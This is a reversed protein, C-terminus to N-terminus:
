VGANVTKADGNTAAEAVKADPSEELDEDSTKNAEDATVQESYEKLLSQEVIMQIDVDAETPQPEVHGQSKKVLPTGDAKKANPLRSRVQAASACHLILWEGPMGGAHYQSSPNKDNIVYVDYVSQNNELRRKIVMNMLQDVLRCEVTKKECNNIPICVSFSCGPVCELTKKGIEVCKETTCWVQPVKTVHQFDLEWDYCHIDDNMKPITGYIDCDIPTTKTPGVTKCNHPLRIECNLNKCDCTGTTTGGCDCVSLPDVARTTVVNSRTVPASHYTTAPASYVPQVHSPYVPRSHIIVSRSRYQAHSQSSMSATFLGLSLLMLLLKM